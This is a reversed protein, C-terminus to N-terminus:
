FVYSGVAGLLDSAYDYVIFRVYRTGASVPLHLSIAIGEKQARAFAENPIKVSLTQTRGGVVEHRDDMAVVAVDLDAKYAGGSEEFAIRTPDVRAEIAAEHHGEVPGVSVKLKVPIDKIEDSRALAAQLRYKTIYERRDFTPIEDSARYGHRYVATVGPRNVSVRIKRYEANKRINTPYYGLLYGTRTTADVRDLAVQGYDAISSVGGTDESLTRMATAQLVNGFGSQVVDLAVRADAALASIDRYDELYRLRLGRGTIFVLHKEGEIRQMYAIAGYLNATDELTQLSRGVFSDFTSWGGGTDIADSDRGVEQPSTRGAAIVGDMANDVQRQM